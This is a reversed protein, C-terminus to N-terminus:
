EGRMEMRLIDMLDEIHLKHANLVDSAVIRNLEQQRPSIVEEEIVVESVAPAVFLESNEFEKGNATLLLSKNMVKDRPPTPPLPLVGVCSQRRKVMEKIVTPAKKKQTYGLGFLNISQYIPSCIFPHPLHAPSLGGVKLLKQKRVLVGRVVGQICVAAKDQVFSTMDEASM